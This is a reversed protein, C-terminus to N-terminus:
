DKVHKLLGEAAQTRTTFEDVLLKVIEPDEIGFANIVEEMSKRLKSVNDEDETVIPEPLSLVVSDSDSKSTVKLTYNEELLKKSERLVHEPSPEPNIGLHLNLETMADAMEVCNRVQDNYNFEGNGTMVKVDTITLTSNPQFMVRNLDVTIELLRSVRELIDRQLSESVNLRRSSNKLHILM